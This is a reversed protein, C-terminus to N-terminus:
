SMNDSSYSNETNGANEAFDSNSQAYFKESVDSLDSDNESTASQAKHTTTSLPGTLWKEIAQLHKRAADTRENKKKRYAPGSARKRTHKM